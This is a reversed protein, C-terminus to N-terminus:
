KWNLGLYLSPYWYVRDGDRKAGIYFFILKGDRDERLRERIVDEKKFYFHFAFFLPWQLQFHWRTWLQTRPLYWGAEEDKELPPLNSAQDIRNKNKYEWRYPGAGKLAFIFTPIERWKRCFIFPPFLGFAIGKPSRPGFAMLHKVKKRWKTYWHDDDDKGDWEHPEDIHDPLASKPM